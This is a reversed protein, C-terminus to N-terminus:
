RKVFIYCNNRIMANKELNNEVKLMRKLTLGDVKEIVGNGAMDGVENTRYRKITYIDTESFSQVDEFTMEDGEKLFAKSTSLIGTGVKTRSAEEFYKDFLKRRFITTPNLHNKMKPVDKWAEYRNSIVLKIDDLSYEKLRNRLESTASDKTSDFKRGYLENMFKIAEHVNPNFRLKNEEKIARNYGSWKIYKNEHLYILDARYKTVNVFTKFKALTLKETIDKCLLLTILLGRQEVSLKESLLNKVNKILLQM